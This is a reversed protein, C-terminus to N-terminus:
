WSECRGLLFLLLPHQLCQRVQLRFRTVVDLLASEDFSHILRSWNAVQGLGMWWGLITSCFGITWSFWMYTDLFFMMVPVACRLPYESMSIKM